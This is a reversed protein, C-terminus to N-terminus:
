CCVWVMISVPVHLYRQYGSVFEAPLGKAYGRWGRPELASAMLNKADIGRALPQGKFRNSFDSQDGEIQGHVSGGPQGQWQNLLHAIKPRLNGMKEILPLAWRAAPAM